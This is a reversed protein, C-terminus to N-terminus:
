MRAITKEVKGLIRKLKQLEEYLRDADRPATVGALALELSARVLSFAPSYIAPLEAGGRLKNARELLEEIEAQREPSADDKRETEREEPEEEFSTIIEGRQKAQMYQEKLRAKINGGFFVSYSQLLGDYIVQGKFPLLVARVYLPLYSKHIMDELEEHLGVVGYVKEEGIFVAYKKLFREIYFKGLVFDKWKRVIALKEASLRDPNEQVYEDILEPEAYLAERVELKDEQPLRQYDAKTTVEPLLELKRNVFLQLSWMLDFYLDADQESLIM